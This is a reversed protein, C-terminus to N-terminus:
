KDYYGAIFVSGEDCGAEKDFEVAKDKAVKIHTDLSVALSRDIAL